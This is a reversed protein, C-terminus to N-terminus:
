LSEPSSETLTADKMAMPGQHMVFASDLMDYESRVSSLKFVSYSVGVGCYDMSNTSDIMSSMKNIVGFSIM